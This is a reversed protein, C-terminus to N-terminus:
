TVPREARFRGRDDRNLAAFCISIKARPVPATQLPSPNGKRGWCDFFRTEGTKRAGGPPAQASRRRDARPAFKPAWPTPSGGGSKENAGGYGRNAVPLRYPSGYAGQRYPFVVHVICSGFFDRQLRQAKMDRGQFRPRCVRLRAAAISSQSWIAIEPIFASSKWNFATAFRRALMAFHGCDRQRNTGSRDRLRRSCMVVVVSPSTRRKIAEINSRPPRASARRM